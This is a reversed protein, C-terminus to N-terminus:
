SESVFSDLIKAGHNLSERPNVPEDHEYIYWEIGDLLNVVNLVAEIDIDGDGLETCVGDTVDVDAFHVTSIRNVYRELYDTPDVGGLKAWGIDIQFGLEPVNSLLLDMGNTDGVSVFEQDHNHYHLAFGDDALRNCVGSIRDAAEIVSQKSKFLEPDLWPVVLKECGLRNYLTTLEQYNTELENLGVHASVPEINNRALSDVVNEVDTEANSIRNAFEVGELSTDGVMDLIEPLPKEMYRLSYLQVATQSM